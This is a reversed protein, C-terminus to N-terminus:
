HCRCRRHERSWPPPGTRLPWRPDFGGVPRTSPAPGAEPTGAGTRIAAGAAPEGGATGAGASAAARARAAADALSIMKDIADMDPCGTVVPVTQADCAATQADTGTM